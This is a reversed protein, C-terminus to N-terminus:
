SQFDLRVRYYTVGFFPFIVSRGGWSQKGELLGFIHAVRNARHLQSGIGPDWVYWQTINHRQTLRSPVFGDIGPDWVLRQSLM